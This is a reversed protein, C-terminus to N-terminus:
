DGVPLGCRVQGDDFQQLAIEPDLLAVVRAHNALADGALEEHQISRQLREQRRQQMQQVDGHLIGRPVGEVPGLPPLAGEVRDLLEEEPLALDLRQEHEELIEM